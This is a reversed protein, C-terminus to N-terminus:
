VLKLVKICGASNAAVMLESKKRSCVSTIFHGDDDATEKGTIPDVLGFKHSTIPM